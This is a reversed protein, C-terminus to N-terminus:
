PKRFTVLYYDLLGMQYARFWNRGWGKPGEVQLIWRDFWPWIRSGIPMFEALRFGISSGFVMFDSLPLIRDIGSKVTPLLERLTRNATKSESFFTCVSIRGESRLIRFAERLFGVPSHFHQAAEVSVVASFSSNRFPLNEATAVEFSIRGAHREKKSLLQWARKVQSPHSDVGIIRRPQYEKLALQCGVGRGCGVELVEDERLMGLHDFGYRYLARSAAIRTRISIKRRTPKEASWLGFNIFGGQFLPYSGLDEKGYMRFLDKETRIM